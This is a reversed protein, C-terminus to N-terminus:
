GRSTSNELNGGLVLLAAAFGVCFPMEPLKLGMAMGTLLARRYAALLRGAKCPRAPVCRERNVVLIALGSFVFVSM